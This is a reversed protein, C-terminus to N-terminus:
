GFKSDENESKKSNQIMEYAKDIIEDLDEKKSLLMNMKEIGKENIMGTIKSAEVPYKASVIEYITDAIEMRIEEQENSNFMNEYVNIPPKNFQSQLQMPNLKELDRQAIIDIDNKKNMDNFYNNNNNNNQNMKQYNKNWQSKQMMQPNMFPNMQYPNIMNQKMNNLNINDGPRIIYKRNNNNINNNNNDNNRQYYRRNNNNNQNNNNYNNNYNNNQRKNNNYRNKAFNGSGNNNKNGGNYYKNNNINNNNNNKQNFNQQYSSGMNINNNSNKLNRQPMNQFNQYNNNNNLNNNMNMNRFNNDRQMNNNYNNNNYPGPTMNKNGYNNYPINNNNYYMNYIQNQNEESPFPYNYPICQFIPIQNQCLEQYKKLFLNYDKFKEFQVLGSMLELDVLVDKPSFDSLMVVKIFLRIEKDLDIDTKINENYYVSNFQINLNSIGYNFAENNKMFNKNAEREEKSSANKVVINPMGPFSIPELKMQRLCNTAGEFTMYSVYAFGKQNVSINSVPGFKEFIPLLEKETINSPINLVFLTIANTKTKKGPILNVIELPKSYYFKGNLNKKANEAAEETYYYIYGFGKSEGNEDYEIKGSVIDGYELFIKYFEKQTMQNDINKVLLSQKINTQRNQGKGEYKCIRVPKGEKMSNAGNMPKLIYGNLEHRAKNAWDKNELYVQAWVQNHKFNNLSAFHFHYDQFMKQLDDNTTENPLDAVYLVNSYPEEVLEKQESSPNEM